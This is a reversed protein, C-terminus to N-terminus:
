KTYGPFEDKRGKFYWKYLKADKPKHAVNIDGCIIVDKKLKLENMKQVEESAIMQNDSKATIAILLSGAFIVSLLLLMRKFM